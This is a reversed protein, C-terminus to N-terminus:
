VAAPSQQIAVIDPIGGQQLVDYERQLTGSPLDVRSLHERPQSPDTRNGNLLQRFGRTNGWCDRGVWYAYDGVFEQPGQYEPTLVM